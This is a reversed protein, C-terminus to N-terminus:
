SGGTEREREREKQAITHRAVDPSHTDTDTDTDTDPHGKPGVLLWVNPRDHTHTGQTRRSLTQVDIGQCLRPM